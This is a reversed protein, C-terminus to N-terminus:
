MRGKLSTSCSISLSVLQFSASLSTCTTKTDRTMNAQWLTCDHCSFSLVNCYVKITTIDASQNICRYQFQRFVPVCITYLALLCYIHLSSSSLSSCSSFCKTQCCFPVTRPQHLTSSLMPRAALVASPLQSPMHGILTFSWSAYEAAGARPSHTSIPKDQTCTCLAKDTANITLHPPSSKVPHCWGLRRFSELSLCWELSPTVGDSLIVCVSLTVGYHSIFYVDVSDYFMLLIPLAFCFSDIM